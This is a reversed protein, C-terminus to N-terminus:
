VETARYEGGSEAVYLPPIGWDFQDLPITKGDLYNQHAQRLETELQKILSQKSM